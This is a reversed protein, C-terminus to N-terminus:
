SASNRREISRIFTMASLWEGAAQTLWSTTFRLDDTQIKKLYERLNAVAERGQFEKALFVWRTVRETQAVEQALELEGEKVLLDAIDRLVFGLNFATALEFSKQIWEHAEARKGEESLVQALRQMLTAKVGPNQIFDILKKTDDFRKQYILRWFLSVAFEM